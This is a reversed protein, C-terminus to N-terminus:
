EGRLFRKRIAQGIKKDYNTEDVGLEIELAEIEDNWIERMYKALQKRAEPIDAEKEPYIGIYKKEGKNAQMARACSQLSKLDPFYMPM